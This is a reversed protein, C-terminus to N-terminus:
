FCWIEGSFRQEILALRAQLSEVEANQDIAPPQTSKAISASEDVLPEPPKDNEHTITKQTSDNRVEESSISTEINQMDDVSHYPTILPSSEPREETPIQNHEPEASETNASLDLSEANSTIEVKAEVLPEPTMEDHGKTAEEVADAADMSKTDVESSEEVHNADLASEIISPTSEDEIEEVSNSTDPLSEPITDNTTEASLTSPPPSETNEITPNTLTGKDSITSEEPSKAVQKRESGVGLPDTSLEDTAEITPGEAAAAPTETSPSEIVSAPETDKEVAHQPKPIQPSSDLPQEIKNASDVAPTVAPSDPLSTSAPSQGPQPTRNRGMPSPSAVRSSRQPTSSGSADGIAFTARRLREELNSKHVRPPEPSQAPKPSTSSTGNHTRQSVFSKRLSSIASEALQSSTLPSTSRNTQIDLSASRSTSTPENNEHSSAELVRIPQQALQEVANRFQSFMKRCFQRGRRLRLTSVSTLLYTPTSYSSKRNNNGIYNCKRCTGM